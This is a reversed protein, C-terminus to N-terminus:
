WLLNLERAHEECLFAGHWGTEKARRIHVGAEDTRHCDNYTCHCCRGGHLTAHQYPIIVLPLSAKDIGETQYM